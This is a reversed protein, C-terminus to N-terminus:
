GPWIKLPKKPTPPTINPTKISKKKYLNALMKNNHLGVSAIIFLSIFNALIIKLTNLNEITHEISGISAAPSTEYLLFLTLALNSISGIAFSLNFRVAIRPLAIPFVIGIILMYAVIFFIVELLYSFDGIESGQSPNITPIFIIVFIFGVIPGIIISLIWRMVQM